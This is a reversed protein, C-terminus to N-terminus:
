AFIQQELQSMIQLAYKNSIHHTNPYTVTGNVKAPCIRNPCAILSPDVSRVNPLENALKRWVRRINVMSPTEVAPQVCQSDSKEAALCKPVDRDVFFVPEIIVVRSVYQLVDRLFAASGAELEALWQASNLELPSQDKSSLLTPSIVVGSALILLAPRWRSVYSLAVPRIQCCRRYPAEGEHASCVWTCATQGQWGFQYGHNRAGRQMADAWMMSFSDGFMLAKPRTGNVDIAKPLNGRVHPTPDCNQETRYCRLDAPRTPLLTGAPTPAFSANGYSWNNNDDGNGYDDLVPDANDMEQQLKEVEAPVQLIAFLLLAM